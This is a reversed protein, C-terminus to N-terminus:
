TISCNQKFCIFVFLLHGHHQKLSSAKKFFLDIKFYFMNKLSILWSLNFIYIYKTYLTIQVYGIGMCLCVPNFNVMIYVM